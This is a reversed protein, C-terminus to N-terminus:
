DDVLYFTKGLLFSALVKNLQSLSMSSAIAPLSLSYLSQSEAM